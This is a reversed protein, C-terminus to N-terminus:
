GPLRAFFYPILSLARHETINGMYPLLKVPDPGRYFIEGAARAQSYRSSIFFYFYMSDAAERTEPFGLMAEALPASSTKHDLYEDFSFHWRILPLLNEWKELFHAGQGHLLGSVNGSLCQTVIIVRFLIQYDTDPVRRLIPLVPQFAPLPLLHLVFDILKQTSPRLVGNVM